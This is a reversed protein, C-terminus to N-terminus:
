RGFGPPIYQPPADPPAGPIPNKSPTAKGPPGIPPQAGFGTPAGLSPIGTFYYLYSGVVAGAPRKLMQMAKYVAAYGAVLGFLGVLQM